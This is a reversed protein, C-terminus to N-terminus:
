RTTKLDTEFIEVFIIIKALRLSSKFTLFLEGSTLAHVMEITDHTVSFEFRKKLIGFDM